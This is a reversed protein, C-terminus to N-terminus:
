INWLLTFIHLGVSQFTNTRTNKYLEKNWLSFYIWSTRQQKISQIRVIQNELWLTNNKKGELLGCKDGSNKSENICLFSNFNAGAGCKCAVLLALDIECNYERGEVQCEKPLLSCNSLTSTDRDAASKESYVFVGEM